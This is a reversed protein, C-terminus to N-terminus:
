DWMFEFIPADVEIDFKGLSPSWIKYGSKVMYITNAKFDMYSNHLGGVRRETGCM